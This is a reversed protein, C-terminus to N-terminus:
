QRKDSNDVNTTLQQQQKTTTTTSAALKCYDDSKSARADFSFRGPKDDASCRL